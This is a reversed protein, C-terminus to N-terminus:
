RIPSRYTVQQGQLLGTWILWPEGSFPFLQTHLCIYFVSIQFSQNMHNPPSAPVCDQQQTQTNGKTKDLAEIWWMISTWITFTVQKIWFGSNELSFTNSFPPTYVKIRIVFVCSLIRVYLCCYCCCHLLEFSFCFGDMKITIEDLTMKLSVDYLFNTWMHVPPSLLQSCIWAQSCLAPELGTSFINWTRLLASLRLEM